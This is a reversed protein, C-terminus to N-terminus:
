EKSLLKYLLILIKIKWGYQSIKANYICKKFMKQHLLNQMEIKEETRRLNGNKINRISFVLFKIGTACLRSSERQLLHHEKLYNEEWELLNNLLVYVNKRYKNSLSEKNFRYYYLCENLVSIRKCKIYLELDSVIDEAFYIRESKFSYDSIIEKRYLNRCVFGEVEKEKSNPVRGIMPLILKEMIQYEELKEPMDQFYHETVNGYLDVTFHSCICIDSGDRQIKEYLKQFMEPHVYDDSDVFGVYDGSVMKIGSNRASSLGGNEKHIVKVRKDRCLRDCIEGSGDPSGDDVLIIEIDKLTQNLLSNVCEELTDKTKYVPVIISVKPNMM